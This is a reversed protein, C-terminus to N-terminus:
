GHFFLNHSGPDVYNLPLVVTPGEINENNETHATVFFPELPMRSAAEYCALVPLETGYEADHQILDHHRSTAPVCSRPGYTSSNINIFFAVMSEQICNFFYAADQWTSSAAVSGDSTHEFKM